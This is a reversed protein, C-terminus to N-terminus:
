IVGIVLDDDHIMKYPEGDVSYKAYGIHTISGPVCWGNWVIFVSNCNRIFGEKEDEIEGICNNLWILQADYIRPKGNWSRLLNPKIRM